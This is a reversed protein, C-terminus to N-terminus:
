RKTDASKECCCCFVSCWVFDLAIFNRIDHKKKTRPKKNCMEALALRDAGRLKRM